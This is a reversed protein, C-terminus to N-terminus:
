LELVPNLSTKSVLSNNPLPLVQYGKTSKKMYFQNHGMQHMGQGQDISIMMNVAVINNKLEISSAYNFSPHFPHPYKWFGAPHLARGDTPPMKKYFFEGSELDRIKVQSSSLDYYLSLKEWNKDQQLKKIIDVANKPSLFYKKEHDTSNICSILFIFLMLIKMSSFSNTGSLTTGSAMKLDWKSTSGLKKLAWLCICLMVPRTPYHLELSSTKLIM